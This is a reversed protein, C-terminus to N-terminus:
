SSIRLEWNRGWSHLTQVGYRTDRNKPSGNLPCAGLCRPKFALLTKMWLVWLVGVSKKFLLQKPMLLGKPEWRLAWCLPFLCFFFFFAWRETKGQFYDIQIGCFNSGSPWSELNIHTQPNVTSREASWPSGHVGGRGQGKQRGGTVLM